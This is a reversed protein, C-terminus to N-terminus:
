LTGNGEPFLSDLTAAAQGLGALSGTVVLPDGPRLAGVGARIAEDPGDAMEVAGRLKGFNASMRGLDIARPGKIRTLIIKRAWPTIMALMGILNKGALPALVVVGSGDGLLKRCTRMLAAMGAPNHAGDLIVLPDRSRIEFRAPWRVSAVGERFSGDTVPFGASVLLEVARTATLLNALQHQGVLAMHVDRYRGSPTVLEVRQGTLEMSLMRGLCRGVVMEPKGKAESVMAEMSRALARKRTGIVTVVGPKAIAAKERAISELSDGLHETHDKDIETIVALKPVVISTADLRGGLGVEVVACTVSEEAFRRYAALTLAEFYTPTVGEKKAADSVAALDASLADYSVPAMGIRIRETVERIHPSLHFGVRLGSAQLVSVLTAAVSGKGNTGAVQIVPYRTEPNGMRGAIARVRDLGLRIGEGQIGELYDLVARKPDSM